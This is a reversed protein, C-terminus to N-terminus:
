CHYVLAVEGPRPRIGVGARSRRLIKQTTPPAGDPRPARPRGRQQRCILTDALGPPGSRSDRSGPSRCPVPCPVVPFLRHHADPFARRDLHRGRATPGQRCCRIAQKDPESVSILQAIGGGVRRAARSRAQRGAASRSDGDEDPNRAPPADRSNGLQDASATGPVLREGQCQHDHIEHTASPSNGATGGSPGREVPLAAYENAAHERSPERRPRPAISSVQPHALDRLPRVRGIM